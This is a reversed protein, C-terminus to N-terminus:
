VGCFVFWRVKNFHLFYYLFNVYLNKKVRNTQLIQQSLESAGCVNSFFIICHMKKEGEWSYGFHISTFKLKQM